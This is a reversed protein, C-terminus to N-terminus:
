LRQVTVYYAGCDEGTADTFWAELETPGSRDVKLDFAVEKLGPDIDQIETEGFLTMRAKVPSMTKVRQQGGQFPAINAAAEDSLGADIPLNLEEPWRRLSFRYDGPRDVDVAWRGTSKQATLIHGQNWAVDGLVDM